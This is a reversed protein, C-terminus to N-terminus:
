KRLIEYPYLKKNFAGTSALISGGFPCIVMKFSGLEKLSKLEKVMAVEWLEREDDPSQLVDGCTPNDQKNSQVKALFVYTHHTELKNGTSM